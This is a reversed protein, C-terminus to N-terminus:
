VADGAEFTAFVRHVTALDAVAAALATGDDRGSEYHGCAKLAEDATAVLAAYLVERVFGAPGALELPETRPGLRWEVAELADEVEGLERRADRVAALPQSGELYAVGVASLVESKAALTALLAEVVHRAQAAPVQVAEHRRMRGPEAIQQTTHVTNRV